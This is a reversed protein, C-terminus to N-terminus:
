AAAAQAFLDPVSVGLLDALIDLEPVTFPSNGTLRRSLTNIHIGTRAAADRQSIGAESLAASVRAAIRRSTDNTTTAM